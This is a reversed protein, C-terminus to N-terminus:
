IIKIWQFVFSVFVCWWWFGPYMKQMVSAQHSRSVRSCRPLICSSTVTDSSTFTLSINCYCGCCLVECMLSSFSQSLKRFIKDEKFPYCRSWLCGVKCVRRELARLDKYRLGWHKLPSQTSFHLSSILQAGVWVEQALGLWWLLFVFGAEPRGLGHSRSFWFRWRTFLGVVWLEELCSRLHLPSPNMFCQSLWWVPLSTRM